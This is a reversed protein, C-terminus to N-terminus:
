KAAGTSSQPQDDLLYLRGNEDQGFMDRKDVEEWSVSPTGKPLPWEPNEKLVDIFDQLWTDDDRDQSM